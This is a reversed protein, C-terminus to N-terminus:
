WIILIYDISAAEVGGRPGARLGLETEVRSFGYKRSFRNVLFLIRFYFLQRVVVRSVAM